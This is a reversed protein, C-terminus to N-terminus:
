GGGKVQAGSRLMEAAKAPDNTPLECVFDHCVYATPKGDKEPLIRTFEALKGLSDGDGGTDKFLLATRPAYVNRLASIMARTEDSDRPGVVVIENSPGLAYDFAILMGTFAQPATAVIQGFANMAERGRDEWTPDGTLRAIRVLNLAAVSNGSPFSSDAADKPRVILKESGEATMFFGGREDDWFADLMVRALDLAARLYKTDFDVQYLEILGLTLYAYDDLFGDGELAGNRYQHWLRGDKKRMTGLMFDAAKKARDVLAPDDFVGGARAFAAIMMGNWDTLVKDDKGPPIRASRVKLMKARIRRLSENLQEETLGLKAATDSLSRVRELVNRGDRRRTAEELYNGDGTTKFVAKATTAEQETLADDIEDESWLYYKGEEGESDADQASYFGGAEDSMVTSVYELVEEATRRYLDKGTAEYAETYALTLMAQDYLMKEFHPVRWLADTSYRHFGFGIQDFIGGSRMKQLTLEVARLLEEDGTRHWQRLLFILNHSAPFKPAGGFGGHTEDFSSMLRQAAQELVEPTLEGVTPRLRTDNLLAMIGTVPGDMIAQRDNQWAEVVTSLLRLFDAKPFYTGAFFPKQEPTLIVTMPWGGRGQNFAMTVEMYIRDIDPRQERDVKISVFHENLYDAVEDNEFSETEMVHCWHCTSYGISLLVPKDEKKARAFADDGWAYWDVPNRAHQLLYPSSEFILRNFDPGGDQPLKAIVDPPPLGQGTGGGPKEQSGM